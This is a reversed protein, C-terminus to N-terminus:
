LSFHQISKSGMRSFSIWLLVNEAVVVKVVAKVVAMDDFVRPFRSLLFSFLSTCNVDPLLDTFRRSYSM